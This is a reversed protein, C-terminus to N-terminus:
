KQLEARPIEWAGSLIEEQPLYFRPVIDFPGNAAFHPCLSGGMGTCLSGSIGACLAGGLEPGFQGVGFLNM